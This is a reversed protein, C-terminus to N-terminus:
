SPRVGLLRELQARDAMLQDPSGAFGVQGKALVYVRDSYRIAFPLKHEVLLVSVGSRKIADM